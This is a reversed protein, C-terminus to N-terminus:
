PMLQWSSFFAEIDGQAAASQSTPLLVAAQYIRNNHLYIQQTVSFSQGYLVASLNFQHGQIEGLSIAQDALVEAGLEAQFSQAFTELVSADMMGTASQGSAAKATEANPGVWGVLYAVDTQPDIAIFQASAFNDGEATVQEQLRSPESPMLISFGGGSPRFPQLAPSPDQGTASLATPAALPAAQALHQPASPGPLAMVPSVWGLGMGWGLGAIGLGTLGRPGPLVTSRWFKNAQAM